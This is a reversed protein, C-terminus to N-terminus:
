HLPFYGLCPAFTVHGATFEKGKLQKIKGIDRKHNMIMKLHSTFILASAALEDKAQPKEENRSSNASLHVAPLSESRVDAAM